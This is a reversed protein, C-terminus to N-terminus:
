NLKKINSLDAKLKNFLGIFLDKKKNPLSIFNEDRLIGEIALILDKPNIDEIKIEEKKFNAEIWSAISVPSNLDSETLLIKKNDSSYKKQM